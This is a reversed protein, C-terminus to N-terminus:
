GLIAWRPIEVQGGVPSNLEQLERRRKARAVDQARLQAIVDSDSYYDPEVGLAEATRAIEDFLAQLDMVIMRQFALMRQTIEADTLVRLSGDPQREVAGAAMNPLISITASCRGDEGYTSLITYTMPLSFDADDPLSPAKSKSPMAVLLRAKIRAQEPTEGNCVFGAAMREWEQQLDVENQTTGRTKYQTNLIDAHEMKGRGLRGTTMLRKYENLLGVIGSGLLREQGGNPLGSVVIKGDCVLEVKPRSDIKCM